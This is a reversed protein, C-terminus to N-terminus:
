QGPTFSPPPPPPIRLTGDSNYIDSTPVSPPPPLISPPPVDNPRIQFSTPQGEVNKGDKFQNSLVDGVKKEGKKVDDKIKDTEVEVNFKPHSPNSSEIGLKYWGLYWGLGAFAVVVAGILALLNRM